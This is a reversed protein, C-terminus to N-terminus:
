RPRSARTVTSTTTVRQTRYETFLDATGGLVTAREAILDIYEGVMGALTDFLKHLQYFQM